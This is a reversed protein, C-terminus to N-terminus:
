LVGLVAQVQDVFSGRHVIFRVCRSCRSLPTPRTTLLSSPPSSQYGANPVNTEGPLSFDGSICVPQVRLISGGFDFLEETTANNACWAEMPQVLWALISSHHLFQRCFVQHMTHQYQNWIGSPSVAVKQKTILQRAFNTAMGPKPWRETWVHCSGLHHLQCGQCLV